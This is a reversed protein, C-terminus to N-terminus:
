LLPNELGLKSLWLKFLDLVATKLFIVDFSSMIFYALQMM